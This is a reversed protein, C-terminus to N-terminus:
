RIKEAEEKADSVVKVWRDKLEKAKNLYETTRREQHGVVEMLEETEIRDALMTAATKTLKEAEALREKRKAELAEPDVAEDARIPKTLIESQMMSEGNQGVAKALEEVLMGEGFDLGCGQRLEPTTRTRVRYPARPDLPGPIRAGPPTKESDSGEDLGIVTALVERPPAPEVEDKDKDGMEKMLRNYDESDVSSSDGSLRSLNEFISNDNEGVAEQQDPANDEGAEEVQM